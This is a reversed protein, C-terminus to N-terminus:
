WDDAATDTTVDFLVDRRSMLAKIDALGDARPLSLRARRVTRVAGFAGLPSDSPRGGASEVLGVNWQRFASGAESERAIWDLLPAGFADRSSAVYAGLFEAVMDPPVGRMLRGRRVTEIPHEASARDALRAGAAWNRRLLEGDEAPF